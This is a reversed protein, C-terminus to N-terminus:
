MDHGKTKEYAKKQRGEVRVTGWVVRKMKGSEVSM